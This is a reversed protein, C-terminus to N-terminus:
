TKAILSLWGVTCLAILSWWRRAVDTEDRSKVVDPESRLLLHFHNSLRAFAILDIGFNAAFHKLKNESWRKRHDFNMGSYQDDGMLFCCRNTRPMTRVAIIESPAFIEAKSLKAM